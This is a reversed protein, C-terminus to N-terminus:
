SNMFEHDNVPPKGHERYVLGGQTVDFDSGLSNEGSRSMTARRYAVVVCVIALVILAFGIGLVEM